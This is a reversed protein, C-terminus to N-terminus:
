RQTQCPRGPTSGPECGGADSCVESEPCLTGADGQVCSGQSTLRECIYGGDSLQACGMGFQCPIFACNAGVKARQVCTSTEQDCGLGDQCDSESLCGLGQGNPLQCGDGECICGRVATASVARTIAFRGRASSRNAPLAMALSREGARCLHCRLVPGRLGCKGFRRTPLQRLGSFPEAARLLLRAPLEAPRRLEPGSRANGLRATPLRHRCHDLHLQLGSDTPVAGRLQRRDPQVGARRCRLSGARARDLRQSM